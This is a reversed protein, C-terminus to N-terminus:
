NGSQKELYEEKMEASSGSAVDNMVFALSLMYLLLLVGIFGAVVYINIYKKIKSIMILEEM